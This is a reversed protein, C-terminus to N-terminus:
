GWVAFTSTPAFGSTQITCSANAGANGNWAFTIGGAGLFASIDWGSGGGNPDGGGFSALWTAANVDYIWLTAVTGGGSILLCYRYATATRAGVSGAFAGSKTLSGSNSMGWTNAAAGIEVNTALGARAMGIGQFGGNWVTPTLIVEWSGDASKATTGYVTSNVGAGAIDTAILNSGTLTINASKNAPDWTASAGSSVTAGASAVWNTSGDVSYECTLTGVAVTQYVMAARGQTAARVITGDLKWRTYLFDEIGYYYNKFKPPRCTVYDGIIYGPGGCLIPLGVISVGVPPTYSPLARLTPLNGVNSTTGTWSPATPATATGSPAGTFAGSTTGAYTAGGPATNSGVRLNAPSGLFSILASTFNPNMTAAQALVNSTCEINNCNDLMIFQPYTGTLNNTTIKGRLQQHGNNDAIFILQGDVIGTNGSIEFDTPAGFYAQIMDNHDTDFFNGSGPDVCFVPTTGNTYWWMKENKVVDRFRGNKIQLLSPDVDLRLLDHRAFYHNNAEDVWNSCGTTYFSYFGQGFNCGRFAFGSSNQCYVSSAISAIEDTENGNVADASCTWNVFEHNLNTQGSIIVKVIQNSAGIFTAGAGAVPHNATFTQPTTPTYGGHNISVVDGAVAAAYKTLFDAWTTALILNGVAAIVTIGLASDRPTNTAGALTERLTFSSLGTGTPTGTITRAASNLTLGTPLTGTQVTITSGSTAGLINITIAQNQIPATNDLTLAALTPNTVVPQLTMYPIGPATPTM